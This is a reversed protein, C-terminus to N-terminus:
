LIKQFYVLDTLLTHTWEANKSACAQQETIEEAQQTELKKKATGALIIYTQRQFADDYESSVKSADDCVVGGSVARTTCARCPV